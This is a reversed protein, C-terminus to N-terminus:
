KRGSNNNLLKEQWACAFLFEFGEVHRRAEALDKGWAYLGHGRVLLGPQIMTNQSMDHSRRQMVRDALAAIDQDNDFVPIIVTQEHSSNEALAKQMEYGQLILDNETARSLVTSIVSHTHLVAGINTDIRYLCTHLELEASPRLAPDAAQNNLDCIMLEDV